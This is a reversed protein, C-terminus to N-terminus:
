PRLFREKSGLEFYDKSVEYYLHSNQEQSLGPGDVWIADLM